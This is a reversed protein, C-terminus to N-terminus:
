EPRIVPHAVVWVEDQPREYRDYSEKIVMKLEAIKGSLSVTQPPAPLKYDVIGLVVDEEVWRKGKPKTEDYWYGKFAAPLYKSLTFGNVGLRRTRQRRLYNMIAKLAKEEGPHTVPLHCIVRLRDEYSVM